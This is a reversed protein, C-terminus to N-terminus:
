TCPPKKLQLRGDDDLYYREIDFPYGKDIYNLYDVQWQFIIMPQIGRLGWRYSNNILKIVEKAPYNKGHRITGDRNIAGGNRPNDKTGWHVHEQGGPHVEPRTINWKELGWPDVANAPDNSVYAYLNMGGEFGIPDPEIFRRLNPSYYRIRYDM